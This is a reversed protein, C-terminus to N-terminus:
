RAPAVALTEEVPAVFRHIRVALLMSVIAVATMIAFILRFLGVEGDLERGSDLISGIIGAGTISGVYRMMSNVGAAAGSLELPSCEIAATTAAGTGLGVGLGLIALGAGLQWEPVDVGVTACLLGAGLAAAAGGAVAPLRRGVADGVRGSVPALVAMAISMAGLAIGSSSAGRHQVEEVFFPVTLLATYMVLNSTLVNGTAAGFSASRFLRWEIVPARSHLLRWGCAAAALLTLGLMAAFSADPTRAHNLTITLLVFVAALLAIGTWDIVLRQRSVQDRYVLRSQLIIAVLIVPVNLLFLWRWNGVDVVLAGLLPGVAAAFSLVAANLGYIRGLRGVPVVERVMALGSPILAAGCVAQGTRLVVLALFTPAAAALLSLVLFSVLSWRFVRM